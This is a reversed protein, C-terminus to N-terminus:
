CPPVYVGLGGHKRYPGVYFPLGPQAQVDRYLRRVGSPSFGIAAAFEALSGGHGLNPPAPVAATATPVVDYSSTKAAQRALRKETASPAVRVAGAPVWWREDPDQQAGPLEGAELWRQVTRPSKGAAAAYDALTLMTAGDAVTAPMITTETM